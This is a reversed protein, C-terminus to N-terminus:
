VYITLLKAQAIDVAAVWNRLTKLMQLVSGKSKIVISIVSMPNDVIFYNHWQYGQNNESSTKNYLLSSM